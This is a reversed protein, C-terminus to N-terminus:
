STLLPFIDHVYYIDHEVHLHAQFVCSTNFSKPEYSWADELDAFQLCLGM